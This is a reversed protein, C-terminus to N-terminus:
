PGKSDLCFFYAGETIPDRRTREANNRQGFLICIYVSTCKGVNVLLYIQECSKDGVTSRHFSNVYHLTSSVNAYNFEKVM